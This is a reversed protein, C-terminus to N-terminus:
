AEGPIKKNKIEDTFNTRIFDKMDMKVLENRRGKDM